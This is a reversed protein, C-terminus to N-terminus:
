LTNVTIGFPAVEKALVRSFQEVAAKSAGYVASGPNALPVAITSINVIRGFSNRKMLKSAERCVIFTGFVNTDFVEQVTNSNTMMILSKSLVGANNILADLRGYGKRIQAFMNIVDREASIDLCFHEYNPLEFEVPSRSCGVVRYGAELYHRALYRGIGRSTGTIMVLRESSLV